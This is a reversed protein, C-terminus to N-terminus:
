GGVIGERNTLIITIQNMMNSDQGYLLLCNDTLWFLETRAYTEVLLNTVSFLFYRTGEDTFSVMQAFM